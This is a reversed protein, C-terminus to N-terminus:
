GWQPPAKPTVFFLSRLRTQLLNYTESLTKNNAVEFIADHFARNLESYSKKDGSRYREVVQTHINRIRVIEDARINACALEAALAELTGLVPVIEDMEKRTVRVVTAGKNPFLRVLGEASLVKLAERLPTRSVGFHDCLRSEAIRSGPRLEGEIIMNRLLMVLEDHLTRRLIAPQISMLLLESRRCHSASQAVACAAALAEQRICITVSFTPAKMGVPRSSTIREADELLQQNDCISVVALCDTITAHWCLLAAVSALRPSLM